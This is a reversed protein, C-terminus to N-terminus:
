RDGKGYQRLWDFFRAEDVLWRRGYRVIAGFAQLSERHNFVLHTFSVPCRGSERFEKASILPNQACSDVRQVANQYEM